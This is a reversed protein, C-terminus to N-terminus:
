KLENLAALIDVANQKADKLRVLQNYKLTYTLEYYAYVEKEAIVMRYESDSLVFADPVSDISNTDRLIGLSGLRRRLSMAEGTLTSERDMNQNILYYNFNQEFDVFLEKLKPHEILGISGDSIASQYTGLAPRFAIPSMKSLDRLETISYESNKTAVSLFMKIAANATEASSVVEELREVNTQFEAILNEILTLRQQRVKAEEKWDGIQVAILIGIVILLIEGIAYAIYTRLKGPLFFSRRLQRLIFLM